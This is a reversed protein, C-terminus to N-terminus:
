CIGFGVVATRVELGFPNNKNILARAGKHEVIGTIAQIVALVQIAWDSKRMNNQTLAHKLILYVM